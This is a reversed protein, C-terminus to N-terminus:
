LEGRRAVINNINDVWVETGIIFGRDFRLPIRGHITMCALLFRARDKDDAWVQHLALGQGGIAFAHRAASKFMQAIQVDIHSNPPVRVVGRMIASIAKWCCLFLTFQPERCAGTGKCFRDACYFVVCFGFAYLIIEEALDSLM